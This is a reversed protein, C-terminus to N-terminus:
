PATHEAPLQPITVSPMMHLMKGSAQPPIPTNKKKISEVYEPTVRNVTKNVPTLLLNRQSM